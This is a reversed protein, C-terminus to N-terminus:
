SKTVGCSYAATGSGSYAEMDIYYAGTGSATRTLALSEDTGAGDEVSREL